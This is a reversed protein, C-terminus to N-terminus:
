KRRMTSNHVDTSVVAQIQGSRTCWRCVKVYRQATIYRTINMYNYAVTAVKSFTRMVMAICNNVTTSNRDCMTRSRYIPYAYEYTILDSMICGCKQFIQTVRCERICLPRSYNAARGTIAKWRFPLMVVCINFASGYHVILTSHMLNMLVIQVMM